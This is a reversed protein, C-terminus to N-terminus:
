SAADSRRSTASLRSCQEVIHSLWAPTTLNSQEAMEKAVGDRRGAACRRFQWYGTQALALEDSAELV